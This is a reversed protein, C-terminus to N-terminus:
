LQEIVEEFSINELGRIFFNPSTQIINATIKNSVKQTALEYWSNKHYPSNPINYIDGEVQYDGFFYNPNQTPTELLKYTGWTGEQLEREAVKEKYNCDIGLLVINKYGKEIAFRVACSGTTIHSFSQGEFKPPTTKLVVRQNSKNKYEPFNEEYFIFQEIGNTKDEILKIFEDKHSDTVMSDFGLYYKPWWNINKLYRYVSNMGIADLGLEQIVKFYEKKMSPGNGIIIITDDKNM